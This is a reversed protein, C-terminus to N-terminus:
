LVLRGNETLEVTEPADADIVPFKVKM